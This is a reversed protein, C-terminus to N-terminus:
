PTGGEYGQVNRHQENPIAHQFFPQFVTFATFIVKFNRTSANTPSDTSINKRIKLSCFKNGGALYETHSPSMNECSFLPKTTKNQPNKKPTSEKKQMTTKKEKALSTNSLPVKSISQSAFFKNISCRSNPNLIDFSTTFRNIYCHRPCIKSHM